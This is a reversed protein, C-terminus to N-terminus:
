PRPKGCNLCFKAEPALEKGCYPCFKSEGNETEEATKPKKLEEIEARMEAISKRSAVVGEYISMVEEDLTEGADIKAVYYEGIKRIIANLNRQEAEIKGSLKTTEIVNTTKESATKALDNIKDFFAM